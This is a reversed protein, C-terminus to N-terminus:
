CARHCCTGPNFAFSVKAIPWDSFHIFKAQKRIKVPDWKEEDNGLFLSHDKKDDRSKFEGTLLDYERHPLVIASKNYMDNLIDMDYKNTPATSVVRMIRAFEEENPEVLLLQSSLEWKDQFHWYARPMAVPAPPLLFLEDLCQLITSDSDLSLVRNYHTQNMALLKTYSEAWTALSNTELGTRSVALSVIM